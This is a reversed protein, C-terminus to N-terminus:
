EDLEDVSDLPMDFPDVPAGRTRPVYVVVIQRISDRRTASRLGAQKAAQVLPSKPDNTLVIDYEPLKHQESVGKLLHKFKDLKMEAGVRRLLKEIGIKFTPQNGCHARGIEYLRREIPSLDFYGDHIALIRRDQLIANYLWDCLTIRIARMQKRGRADIRYEIEAQSFWSFFGAYGKGGAEITTKIQGGQLRSLMGEIRAYDRGGVARRAVRLFDHAAFVFTKGPVEGRNMAMIMLSAVYLILEADWITPVGLASGHVEIRVKGDDYIIPRRRPTKSLDFFPYAMLHRESRVKGHLPSDFLNLQGGGDERTTIVNVAPVPAAVPEIVIQSM